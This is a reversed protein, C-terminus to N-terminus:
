RILHMHFEFAKVSPCYNEKTTKLTVLIFSSNCQVSLPYIEGNHMLTKSQSIMGHNNILTNDELKFNSTGNENKSVRPLLVELGQNGHSELTSGQLIGGFEEM